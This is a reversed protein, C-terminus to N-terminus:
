RLTGVTRRHRVRALILAYGAGLLGGYILHGLLSQWATANLTFVPMGLRAPMLLLAGPVWWLAGYGVGLLVARGVGVVPVLVGFAAGIVASIALHVAWGVPLSDGGVLMAVMPLMGMMQMLLGFAVGGFLGGATGAAVRRRLPVKSTPTTM